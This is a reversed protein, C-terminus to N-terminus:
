TQKRENFFGVGKHPTPNQTNDVRGAPALYTDILHINSFYDSVIRNRTNRNGWLDDMYELPFAAGEYRRHRYRNNAYDWLMKAIHHQHSQRLAAFQPLRLILLDELGSPSVSFVGNSM